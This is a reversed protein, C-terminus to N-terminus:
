NPLSLDSENAVRVHAENPSKIRYIYESGEQPM